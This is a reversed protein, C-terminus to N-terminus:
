VPFKFGDAAPLRSLQLFISQMKTVYPFWLALSQNVNLSLLLKLADFLFWAVGLVIYQVLKALSQPVINSVVSPRIEAEGCGFFFDLDDGPIIVISLLSFVKGINIENDDFRCWGEAGPLPLHSRSGAAIQLHPTYCLM